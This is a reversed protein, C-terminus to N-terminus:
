KKKASQSAQPGYGPAWAWQQDALPDTYRGGVKVEWHLHPGTVRGSAGTLGIVQGAKVQQGKQVNIQSLHMFTHHLQGQPGTVIIKNGASGDYGAISVTGDIPSKLPTGVAAKLDVGHHVGSARHAGPLDTVLMTDLPSVTRSSITRNDSSPPTPNVKGAGGPEPATPASAGAPRKYKAPDKTAQALLALTEANPTGTIPLKNISQFDKLAARTDDGFKGDAGFKGLNYGLDILHQQMLQINKDFPYVKTSTDTPIKGGQDAPKDDKKESDIATNVEPKADPSVPKAIAKVGYTSASAIDNYSGPVIKDASPYMKLDITKDGDINAIKSVALSAGANYPRIWVIKKAGLAKKIARLNAGTADPDTISLNGPKVDYTGASVIALDAGKLNADAMVNSAVRASDLGAGANVVANPIASAIGQAITDGVVVVKGQTEAEVIIDFVKM